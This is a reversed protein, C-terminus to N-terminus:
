GESSPHHLFLEWAFFAPTQRNAARNGRFSTRRYSFCTEVDEQQEATQPRSHQRLPLKDQCPVKTTYSKKRGWPFVLPLAEKLSQPREQRPAPFPCHSAQRQDGSSMGGKQQGPTWQSPSREVLPITPPGASAM